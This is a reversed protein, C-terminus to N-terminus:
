KIKKAFFLAIDRNSYYQDNYGCFEFGFKQAFRICPHNKSQMELILCSVGRELAWAQVSTLLASAAGKRRQESTVVLDTIWATGSPRDERVCAYGASVKGHLAVLTLDRRPWIENLSAPDRPYSVDVSRPLRVERFGATLQETERRLDLQWVYDSKCSHDIAALRPIDAAAAPRVDFVTTTGEPM